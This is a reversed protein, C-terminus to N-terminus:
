FKRVYFYLSLYAENKSHYKGSSIRTDVKKLPAAEFYEASKWAFLENEMM